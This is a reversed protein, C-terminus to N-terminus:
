FVHHSCSISRCTNILSIQAPDVTASVDTGPAFGESLTKIVTDQNVAPAWGLQPTTALSQALLSSAQSNLEDQGMSSNAALLGALKDAVEQVRDENAGWNSAVNQIAAAILSNTVGAHVIAVKLYPDTIAATTVASQIALAQVLDM